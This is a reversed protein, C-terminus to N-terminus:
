IAGRQEIQKMDEPGQFHNKVREKINAGKGIYLLAAKGKFVYVGSTKPLKSLSNIKIYKFKEM